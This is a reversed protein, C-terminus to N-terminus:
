MTVSLLLHSLVGWTNELLLLTQYKTYINPSNIGPQLVLTHFRGSELLEVERPFITHWSDSSFSTGTQYISRRRNFSYISSLVSVPPLTHLADYHVTQIPGETWNTALAVASTSSDRSRTPKSERHMYTQCCCESSTSATGIDDKPSRSVSLQLLRTKAFHTCVGAACHSGSRHSSMDPMQKLRRLQYFCTSVVKSVQQKMSLESDLLVGLDRVVKSPETNDTGLSLM